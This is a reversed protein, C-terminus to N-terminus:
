AMACHSFTLGTAHFRATASRVACRSSRCSTALASCCVSASSTFTRCRSSSMRSPKAFPPAAAHHSQSMMSPFVADETHRAVIADLDHDAWARGYQAFFEEPDASSGHEETERRKEIM